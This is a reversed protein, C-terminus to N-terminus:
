TGIKTKWFLYSYRHLKTKQKTTPPTHQMLPPLQNTNKPRDKTIASNFNLALLGQANHIVPDSSTVELKSGVSMASIRPKFLCGNNDVLIEIIDIKDTNKSQVTNLLDHSSVLSLSGLLSSSFGLLLSDSEHHYFVSRQLGSGKQSSHSPIYFEHVKHPFRKWYKLSYNESVFAISIFM